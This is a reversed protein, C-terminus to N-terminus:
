MPRDTCPPCEAKKDLKALVAQTRMLDARAKKLQLNARHEPGIGEAVVMEELTGIIERMVEIAALLAV